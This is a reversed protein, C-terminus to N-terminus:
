LVGVPGHCFFSRRDCPVHMWTGSQSRGQVLTRSSAFRLNQRGSTATASICLDSLYGPAIGRVCKWIMLATKFDVQQSVTLWHLDELIPPVRDCRSAGTVMRAAMGRVCKWVVLATKFDVQQSVTLWHLDELIPPVRDCRRAGTVMRAAMGRVCKWIMLATKFDVQQSVTLWHLDELVPPVRDCRRTGTVMRAAMGRVCKWVM